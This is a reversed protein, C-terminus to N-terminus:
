QPQESKQTQQRQQTSMACLGFIREIGPVSRFFEDFLSRWDCRRLRRSWARGNRPSVGELGDWLGM